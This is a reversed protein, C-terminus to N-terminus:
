QGPAKLQWRVTQGDHTVELMLREPKGNLTADVVGAYTNGGQHVLTIDQISAGRLEPKKQWEQLILPKVAGALEKPDPKYTAVVLVFIVALYVGVLGFGALLPLGWGKKVYGGGLAEKVYRAHPRGQTFYWGLLLGVGTLRMVGEIAKSDPTFLTGINVALFALTAWIWIMNTAARDPKGLARWNAAHLYAGFAPTLLLSWNAAANPNWLHPRAPEPSLLDSDDM